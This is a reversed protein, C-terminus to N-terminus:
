DDKGGIVDRYENFLKEWQKDSHGWFLCMILTGVFLGIAFGLIM